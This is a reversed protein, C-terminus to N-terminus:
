FKEKRIESRLEERVREDMAVTQIRLRFLLGDLLECVSFSYSKPEFLNEVTPQRNADFEKRVQM